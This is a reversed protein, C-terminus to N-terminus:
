QPAGQPPAMRRRLDLWTDAVGIAFLAFPLVPIALLYLVLTFLRSARQLGTQVVALGRAAYLGGVVVFLNAAVITLAGAPALLAVASVAVLLWILHDNFRLEQFAKPPLGIPRRSIRFYWGWALWAGGLLVLTLFGPTLTSATAVGDAMTRAFESVADTGALDAAGTPPVAPLEPFLVRYADWTQSAVSSRFDVFQLHLKLYWGIVGAAAVAASSLARTILSRTGLLALVVFAGAFFVGYARVSQDVLSNRSQLSAVIGLLSLLLWLWERGTTPRSVLLLLALPGLLFISPALWLYGALM